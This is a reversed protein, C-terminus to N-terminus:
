TMGDSSEYPAPRPPQVLAVPTDCTGVWGAASVGSVGSATGTGPAAGTSAGTTPEAGLVPLTLLPPPLPRLWPGGCPRLPFLMGCPPAGGCM